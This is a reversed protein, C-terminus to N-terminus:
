IEIKKPPSFFIIEIDTIYWPDQIEISAEAFSHPLIPKPFNNKEMIYM